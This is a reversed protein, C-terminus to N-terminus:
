WIVSNWKKEDLSSSILNYNRNVFKSKRNATLRLDLNM